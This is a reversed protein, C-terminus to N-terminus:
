PEEDHCDYRHQEPRDETWQAVRPGDDDYSDEAIERDTDPQEEPNAAAKALHTPNATM